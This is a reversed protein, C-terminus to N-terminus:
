DPLENIETFTLPIVYVMTYKRTFEDFGKESSKGLENVQVTSYFLHANLRLLKRSFFFCRCKWEKFHHLFHNHVFIVQFIIGVSLNDCFLLFNWVSFKNIVITYSFLRKLMGAVGANRTVLRKENPRVNFRKSLYLHECEEYLDQYVRIVHWLKLELWRNIENLEFLNEVPM